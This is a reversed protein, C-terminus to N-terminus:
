RGYGTPLTSPRNPDRSAELTGQVGVPEGAIRRQLLQLSQRAIPDLSGRRQAQEQMLARELQQTLLQDKSLATNAQQAGVQGQLLNKELGSKGSLVNGLGGLLGLIGQGGLFNAGGKLM